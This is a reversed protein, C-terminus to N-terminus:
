CIHCTARSHRLTPADRRNNWYQTHEEVTTCHSHVDKWIVSIGGGVDVVVFIYNMKKRAYLFDVIVIFDNNTTNVM